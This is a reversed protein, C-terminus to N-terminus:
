GNSRGSFFLFPFFVDSCFFHLLSLFSFLPTYKTAQQLDRLAREIQAL